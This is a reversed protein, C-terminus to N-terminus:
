VVVAELMEMIQERIWILEKQLYVLFDDDALFISSEAVKACLEEGSKYIKLASDEDVGLEAAKDMFEGAFGEDSYYTEVVAKKRKGLEAPAISSPLEHSLDCIEASGSFVSLSEGSIKLQVESQEADTEAEFCLLNDPCVLQSFEQDAIEKQRILFYIRSEIGFGAPYYNFSDGFDTGDACAVGSFGAKVVYAKFSKLSGKHYLLGQLAVQKDVNEFVESNFKFRM